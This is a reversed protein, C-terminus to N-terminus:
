KDELAKEVEAMKGTALEQEILVMGCAPCAPLDVALDANLYQVLILMTEVPVMCQNCNWRGGKGTRPREAGSRRRAEMKHSYAAHVEFEEGPRSYEVWYTVRGPRFSALSRGSSPSTFKEGTAEGHHVTAQVNERPIHRSEILVEVDEPIHVRITENDKM